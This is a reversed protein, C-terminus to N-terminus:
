HCLMPRMIALLETVVRRKSGASAIVSHRDVFEISAGREEYLAVVSEHSANSIVATAGRRAAAACADALRIQDDWSFLNENYKIFGNTSHTTVYPPDAFIFDGYNANSITVQFDQRVIEAFQLANAWIDFDDDAGIVKTKTGIPVNFKGDRNVRFLANWCTRNLYLLQAARQARDDFSADRVQYYYERSHLDHHRSLAQKVQDPNDRVARYTDILWPNVDSLIARDPKLAFFAAGSGLFPEIYLGFNRPVVGRLKPVLWRKGGAWKLFPAITM